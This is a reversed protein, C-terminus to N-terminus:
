SDAPAPGFLARNRAGFRQWRRSKADTKWLKSANSGRHLVCASYNEGTEFQVGFTDALLSDTPTGATSDGAAPNTRRCGTMLPISQLLPSTVTVVMSAAAACRQCGLIASATRIASAPNPKAPQSVLAESNPQFLGGACSVVAAVGGGAAIGGSARTDTAGITPAGSAIALCICCSNVLATSFCRM